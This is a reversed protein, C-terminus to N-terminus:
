GISRDTPLYDERIPSFVEIVVADALIDAGHAMGGPISWSHTMMTKEGYALTKVRIGDMPAQYGQDSHKVFMSKRKKFANLPM